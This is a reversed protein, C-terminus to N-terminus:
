VASGKKYCYWIYGNSGVLGVIFTLVLLLGGLESMALSFSEGEAALSDRFEALKTGNSVYRVFLTMSFLTYTVSLLAALYKNLRDGASFHAAVIVAFSSSMWLAFIRDLADLIMYVIEYQEAISM